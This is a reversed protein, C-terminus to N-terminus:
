RPYQDSSVKEMWVTTTGDLNETIAVHSMGSADSAGHWHKVGPPIRVIDGPRIAQAAGDWEQVWGVGSLVILTQGMPHAHWATHAGPEFTVIGGALRSPDEGKFRSDVRASGTFRDSPAVIATHEDIHTVKVASVSQADAAAPLVLCALLAAAVRNM